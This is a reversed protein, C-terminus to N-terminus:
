TKLHFHAITISMLNKLSSEQSLPPVWNPYIPYSHQLLLVDAMPVNVVGSM